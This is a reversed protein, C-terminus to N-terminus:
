LTNKATFQLPASQTRLDSASLRTRQLAPCAFFICIIWKSAPRLWRRRVLYHTILKEFDEDDDDNAPSCKEPFSFNRGGAPHQRSFISCCKGRWGPSPHLSATRFSSSSSLPLSRQCFKNKFSHLFSCASWLSNGRFLQLHFRSSLRRVHLTTTQANLEFKMRTTFWPRPSLVMVVMTTSWGYRKPRINPVPQWWAENARQCELEWSKIGIQSLILSFVCDIM